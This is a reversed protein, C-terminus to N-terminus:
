RWWWWWGRGGEDEDEEDDFGSEPSSNGALVMNNSWTRKNEAENTWSLLFVFHIFFDVHISFM